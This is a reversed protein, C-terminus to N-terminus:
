NTKITFYIKMLIGVGSFDIDIFINANKPEPVLESFQEANLCKRYKFIRILKFLIGLVGTVHLYVSSLGSNDLM